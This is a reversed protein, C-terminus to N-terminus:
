GVAAVKNPRGGGLFGQMVVPFAAANSSAEVVYKRLGESFQEIYTRDLILWADFVADPAASDPIPIGDQIMGEVHWRVAEDLMNMASQRDTAVVAVGPMDPLYAGVNGDSAQEFVIGYIM